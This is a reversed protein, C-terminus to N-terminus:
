VALISKFIGESDHGGLTILRGKKVTSGVTGHAETLEEFM